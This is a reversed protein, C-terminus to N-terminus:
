SAFTSPLGIDELIRLMTSDSCENERHLSQKGLTNSEFLFTAIQGKCSCVKRMM